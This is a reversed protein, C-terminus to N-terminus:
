IQRRIMGYVTVLAMIFSHDVHPEVALTFVDDGLVVGSRSQKTKAEAVVRRNSDMIRFATSKSNLGELRYCNSESRMTVKYSCEKNGLISKYNKRMRFLPKSACIGNSKYGKWSPFGCMKKECLTFLLKGRLDMLYVESSHKSDYNDVRYVIEGNEDFATCGSGQMVLSKMWITCTERKSTLYKNNSCPTSTSSSSADGTSNSTLLPHVKAM